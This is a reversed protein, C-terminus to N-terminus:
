LIPVKASTLAESLIDQIRKNELRAEPSPILRHLLVPEVLEAIDEPTTYSRGLLFARTRAAKTLAIAARPSAGLALYRSKRTNRAIEVAYSMLDRHVTVSSIEKKMSLIDQKTTVAELTKLPEREIIRSVIDTEDEAEKPYGISIKMMFRDLQAEPLQYTGLQEVPNQTAIVM